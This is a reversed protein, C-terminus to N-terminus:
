GWNPVTVAYDPPYAQNDTKCGNSTCAPVSYRQVLNKEGVSGASDAQWHENSHGWDSTTGAYDRPFAM